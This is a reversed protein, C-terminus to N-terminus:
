SQTVTAYKIIIRVINIVYSSLDLVQKDTYKKSFADSIL